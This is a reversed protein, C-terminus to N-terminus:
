KHYNEVLVILLSLEGNERVREVILRWKDTIDLGRQHKRGGKLKHYHLGTMKRLDLETHASAIFGVVKRFGKDIAPTYGLSKSRDYYVEELDPDDFEFKM